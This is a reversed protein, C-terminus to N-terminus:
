LPRTLNHPIPGDPFLLSYNVTLLKNNVSKQPLKNILQLNREIKKTTELFFTYKSPKPPSTTEKNGIKESHLLLFPTFKKKQM